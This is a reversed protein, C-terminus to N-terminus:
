KSGQRPTVENIYAGTTEGTFPNPLSLFQNSTEETNSSGNLRNNYEYTIPINNYKVYM